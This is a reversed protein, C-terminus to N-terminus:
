GFDFGGIKGPKGPGIGHTAMTENSHRFFGPHYALLGIGGKDQSTRKGRPKKLECGLELPVLTGEGIQEEVGLPGLPNQVFDVLELEVKVAIDQVPRSIPNVDKKLLDENKEQCTKKFFKCQIFISKFRNTSKSKNEKFSSVIREEQLKAM